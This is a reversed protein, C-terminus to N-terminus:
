HAREILATVAARLDARPGEGYLETLAIEAVMAVLLHAVAQPDSWGMAALDPEIVSATQRNRAHVEDLLDTDTRSQALFAKTGRTALCADLYATVGVEVRGAGPPLDAIRAGITDALTDHYRRHLAIVYSRRDPFHHYFTGKAMGAAEVVANISLGRLGRDEAVRAGATMLANRGPEAPKPM